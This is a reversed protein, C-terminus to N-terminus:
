GLTNKLKDYQDAEKYDVSVYYLLGIFSQIDEENAEKQAFKKIGDTMKQRFDEDSLKSRGVGLLAFCTPLLKQQYLDFISPVLKRFTLDGSAGFITLTLNDTAKM